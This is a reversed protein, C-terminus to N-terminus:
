TALNPVPIYNDNLLCLSLLLPFEKYSHGFGDSGFHGENSRIITMGGFRKRMMEAQRPDCGWPDNDSTIFVFDKSNKIINKDNLDKPYTPHNKDVSGIEDIFGGVIITKNTTIINKSLLHFFFPSAASHGIIIDFDRIDTDQLFETEWHVLAADPSFTPAYVNYESKELNSKLWPTWHVDSTGGTGHMIYVNKEM